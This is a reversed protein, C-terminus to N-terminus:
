ILLRDCKVDPQLLNYSWKVPLILLQSWCKRFMKEINLNKDSKLFIKLEDFYKRSESM